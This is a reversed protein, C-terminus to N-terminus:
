RNELHYLIQEMDERLEFHLERRIADRLYPVAHQDDMFSLALAAGDRIRASSCSLSRELLWRRNFYTLPHNMLGLWRLAESAVEADVEEDLVIDTLMNVAINGHREILSVLGRSFDSEMGDEFVIEKAQRFIAVADHQVATERIVPLEATFFWPGEPMDHSLSRTKVVNIRELAFNLLMLLDQAWEEPQDFWPLKVTLTSTNELRNVGEESPDFLRLEDTTVSTNELRREFHEIARRTASM